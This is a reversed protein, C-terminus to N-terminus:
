NEPVLVPLIPTWSDRLASIGIYGTWGFLGFVDVANRSHADGLFAVPIKRENSSSTVEVSANHILMQDDRASAKRGAGAYSTDVKYNANGLINPVRHLHDILNASEATDLIPLRRQTSHFANHNQCEPQQFLHKSGPSWCNSADVSCEILKRKTIMQATPGLDKVFFM